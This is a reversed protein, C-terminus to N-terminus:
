ELREHKVASLGVANKRTGKNQYVMSPYTTSLAGFGAIHAAMYFTNTIQAKRKKSTSNCCSYQELDEGEEVLVRLLERIETFELSLIKMMLKQILPLVGDKLFLGTLVAVSASPQVVPLM